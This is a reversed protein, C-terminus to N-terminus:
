DYKTSLLQLRGLHLYIMIRFNNPNRYGKAVRKIEQIKLNVREAFANTQLRYFYTKIGYWHRHLMSIFRNIPELNAKQADKIWHNLPTVRKIKYAQDMVIKLQEKLRYATGINPCAARLQELRVKQTKTLKNNNKLWLYKSGILEKYEQREQKRITDIATNLQKVVHFRDFVIDAQELHQVAGKIYSKSMDMTITRVHHRDAGRLEMEQLAELFAEENRGIGIGTVKKEQRDTMVTFYHHGKKTSTEDVSLKKVPKLQESVLATGVRKTVIRQVRGRGIDLHRGAASLSMGKKVLELVLDEFLLTFSSGQDSWPVEVLRVTGDPLRVRPVDCHLFCKHQFFNLHMWKRKQHDYVPCLQGEYELPIGSLHKIHIHLAFETGELEMRIDGIYWPEKLNLGLSFIEKSEM